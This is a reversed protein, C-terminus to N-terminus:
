ARGVIRDVEIEIVVRDAREKPQRYRQAYRRVGEAVAEPADTVQAAGYITLWRGGDVSGIAVRPDHGDAVHRAKWSAAWTIVRALRHEPDYTFGVPTVRPGGDPALVTLTGLHRETLFTIVESPLVDLDFAAM